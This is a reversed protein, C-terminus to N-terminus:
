FAPLFYPYNLVTYNTSYQRLPKVIGGKAPTNINPAIHNVKRLSRYVEKCEEQAQVKGGEQCTERTGQLYEKLRRQEDRVIDSLKGKIKDVDMDREKKIKKSLRKFGKNVPSFLQRHQSPM